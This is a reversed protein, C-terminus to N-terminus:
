DKIYVINADIWKQEEAKTKIPIRRKSKERM